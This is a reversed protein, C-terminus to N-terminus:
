ESARNVDIVDQRAMDLAGLISYGGILGACTYGAMGDKFIGVVVVAVVEGSGVKESWEAMTSVASEMVQPEGTPQGWLSIVKESM